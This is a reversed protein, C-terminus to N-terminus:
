RRLAALRDSLNSPRAGGEVQKLAEAIHPDSEAVSSATSTLAETKMKATAAKARAEDARRQMADVAVNLRNTPGQRLGAVESARRAQEEAREQQMVARQMDRKTRELNQKATTLATAKEKYAKQAEDLLAKVEVVDQHEQDVEPKLQELQAVLKALSAEIAPKDAEAAATLKSQLLEAAALLQNYHKDAAEAERVERDYDGRIKQLVAGASDLDKEMEELQAQTAAEPDIEVIAQVVDQGLQKGKVGIFSKVFSFM